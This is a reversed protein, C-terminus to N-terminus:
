CEFRVYRIRDWGTFRNSASFSVNRWLIHFWTLKDHHCDLHIAARKGRKWWGGHFWQAVRRFSSTLEPHKQIHANRNILPSSPFTTNSHQLIELRENKSSNHGSETDSVLYHVHFRVSRANFTSAAEIGCSTEIGFSTELSCAAKLGSRNQSSFTGNSCSFSAWNTGTHAKFLKGFLLGEMSSSSSSFSRNSGVAKLFSGGRSAM